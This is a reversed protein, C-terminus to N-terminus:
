LCLLYGFFDIFEFDVFYRIKEDKLDIERRQFFDVDM